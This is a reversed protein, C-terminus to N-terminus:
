TGEQPKVTGPPYDLKKQHIWNVHVRQRSVLVKQINLKKPQHLAYNKKKKKEFIFSKLVSQVATKSVELMFAYMRNVPHQM